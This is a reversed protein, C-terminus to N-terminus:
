FSFAQYGHNAAGPQNAVSPLRMAAMWWGSVGFLVIHLIMRLKIARRRAEGGTM